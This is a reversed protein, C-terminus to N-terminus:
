ETATVGASKGPTFQPAPLRSPESINPCNAAVSAVLSTIARRGLSRGASRITSTAFRRETNNCIGASVSRGGRLFIIVSAGVLLFRKRKLDLRVFSAAPATRVWIPLRGPM